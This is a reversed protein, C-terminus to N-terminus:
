IIEWEQYLKELIANIVPKNTCEQRGACEKYKGDKMKKTYIRWLESVDEDFRMHFEKFEIQRIPRFWFAVNHCDM